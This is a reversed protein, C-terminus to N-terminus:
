PAAPTEGPEADPDGTSAAADSEEAEETATEANPDAEGEGYRNEDSAPGLADSLIEEMSRTASLPDTGPVAAPVDAEFSPKTGSAAGTTSASEQKPLDATALWECAQVVEPDDLEEVRSEALTVLDGKVRGYAKKAEEV